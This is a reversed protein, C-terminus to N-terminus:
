TDFLLDGPGSEQLSQFAIVVLDQPMKNSLYGLGALAEFFPFPAASRTVAGWPFVWIFDLERAGRCVRQLGRQLGRVFWQGGCKTRRPLQRNISGSCKGSARPCRLDPTEWDGGTGSAVGDNLFIQKEMKEM